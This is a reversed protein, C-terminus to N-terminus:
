DISDHLENPVRWKNKWYEKAKDIWIYYYVAKRISRTVLENEITLKWRDHKM